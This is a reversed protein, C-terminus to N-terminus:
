LCTVHVVYFNCQQNKWFFLQIAYKISRDLNACCIQVTGQFSPQGTLQHFLLQSSAKTLPENM